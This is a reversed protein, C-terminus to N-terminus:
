RAARQVAAGTREPRAMLFVVVPLLALAAGVGAMARPGITGLMAGAVISGGAATAIAVFEVFGLLRGREHPQTADSLMATAAVFAVNWGVGIAFMAPVATGLAVGVTLGLCGIALVLM